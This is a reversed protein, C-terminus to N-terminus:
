FEIQRLCDSFGGLNTVFYRERNGHGICGHGFLLKLQPIDVVSIDSATCVKDAVEHQLVANILSSVISPELLLAISNDDEITLLPNLLIMVLHTNEVFTRSGCNNQARDIYEYEMFDMALETPEFTYLNWTQNDFIQELARQLESIGDYPNSGFQLRLQTTATYSEKLTCHGSSWLKSCSSSVEASANNIEPACSCTGALSTNSMSVMMIAVICIRIIM